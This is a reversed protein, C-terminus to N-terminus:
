RNVRSIRNSLLLEINSRLIRAVSFDERAVRVPQGFGGTPLRSFLKGSLRIEEHRYLICIFQLDM